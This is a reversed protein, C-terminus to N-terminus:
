PDPILKNRKQSYITGRPEQNQIFLRTGFTM